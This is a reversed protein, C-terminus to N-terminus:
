YRSGFRTRSAWKAHLSWSSILYHNHEDDQVLTSLM